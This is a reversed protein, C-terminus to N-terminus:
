EKRRKATRICAVIIATLENAEHQLETLRNPRVIGSDALMELWFTTEDAEEEVVRAKNLCDRHSRARQTARYISAVSTGSRVLQRAIVDASITRRM